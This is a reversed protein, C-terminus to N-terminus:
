QGTGRAAESGDMWWPRPRERKRPWREDLTDGDSLRGDKMVYRITNTNRIDDLPNADLVQLDALKCPELSGLDGAVGIADAGTLSGIRIVDIPAIGGSALSWLEWQVGLWQLQGHGGLGVKGGADIIKKAQEALRPHIYQDDRFWQPRRMSRQDIESPPMFRRLKADAHIDSHEYWYNETWPGGYAVLLTPTYTIGSQAVLEVVDKFLPYVPYNHEHGPYGDLLETINM